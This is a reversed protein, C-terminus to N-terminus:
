PGMHWKILPLPSHEMEKLDLDKHMAHVDVCQAGVPLILM